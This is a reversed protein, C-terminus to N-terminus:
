WMPVTWRTPFVCKRSRWCAWLWRRRPSSLSFCQVCGPCHTFLGGGGGILLGYATSCDLWGWCFPSAPRHIPVWHSQPGKGRRCGRTGACRGCSTAEKLDMFYRLGRFCSSVPLALLVCFSTLSKRSQKWHPSLTRRPRECLEPLGKVWYQTAFFFFFTM